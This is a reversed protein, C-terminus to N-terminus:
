KQRKNINTFFDDKRKKLEKAIITEILNSMSRNHIASLHKLGIICDENLTFSTKVRNKKM